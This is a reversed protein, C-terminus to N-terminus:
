LTPNRLIIPGVESRVNIHATKSHLVACILVTMEPRTGGGLHSHPYPPMKNNKAMLNRYLSQQLLLSIGMLFPKMEERRLRFTGTLWTSM